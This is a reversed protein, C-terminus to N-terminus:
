EVRTVSSTLLGISIKLRPRALVVSGRSLLIGINLEGEDIVAGACRKLGTLTKVGERGGCTGPLKVEDFSGRMNGGILFLSAVV